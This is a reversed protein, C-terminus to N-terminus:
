GRCCWEVLHEQRPRLSWPLYAHAGEGGLGLAGHDFIEIEGVGPWFHAVLTEIDGAQPLSLPGRLTAPLTCSFADHYSAWPLGRLDTALAGVWDRGGACEVQGLVNAFLVAADPYRKGLAALGGVALADLRGLEVGPWRMGWCIRALPDPELVTLRDFRRLWAMPLTYGASAGVIVLHDRSPRWGALWQAVGAIFDRWGHRRRLATAHWVLGGSNSLLQGRLRPSLDSM